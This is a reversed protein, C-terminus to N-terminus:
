PYYRRESDTLREQMGEYAVWAAEQEMNCSLRYIPMIEMLRDILEMTKVVGAPNGARHTQQVIMPYAGRLQEKTDLKVIHNDTARELICIAKLPVSTHTSLRHKGDWPTGCAIVGDGTIRLLPKDDNIMVARDGFAERWLRAHTSKGTGSKATFLYGYGDVAVVSGHFLITDYSLMQEAIKRYVALTELYEDTFHRPPIGEKRDEAESKKREYEIDAGSVDITFDPKCRSDTSIFNKCYQEIYPYLNFVEISKDALKIRM